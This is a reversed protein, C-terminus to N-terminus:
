KNNDEKKVKEKKDRRKEIIMKVVRISQMVAFVALGILVAFGIIKAFM